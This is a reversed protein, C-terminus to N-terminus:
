MNLITNELDEIKNVSAPQDNQLRVEKRIKEENKM